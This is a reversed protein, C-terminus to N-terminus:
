PPRGDTRRALAFLTYPGAERPKVVRGVRAGLRRAVARVYRGLPYNGGFLCGVYTGFHLPQYRDGRLVVVELGAQQLALRLSAETWITLHHPPDDFGRAFLAPRREACPVSVAVYTGANALARLFELPREVHEVVEFASVVDYRREAALVEWLDGCFLRLGYAERGFRVLEPQFDVGEADFGRLQAAHLLDGAGCGVDLLTAPAPPIVDLFTGWAWNAAVDAESMPKLQLTKPYIWTTSYWTADGARM